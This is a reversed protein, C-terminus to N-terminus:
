ADSELSTSEDIYADIQQATAQRLTEYNDATMSVTQPFSKSGLKVFVVSEQLYGYIKRLPDFPIRRGSRQAERLSDLTVHAFASPSMALSCQQGGKLRLCGNPTKQSVIGLLNPPLLMVHGRKSKDAKRAKKQIKGDSAKHVIQHQDSSDLVEITESSDSSSTSAADTPFVEDLQAM